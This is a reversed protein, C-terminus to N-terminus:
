FMNKELGPFMHTYTVGNGKNRRALELFALDGLAGLVVISSMVGYAGPKKLQLDDEDLAKAGQGAGLVSIVRPNFAAQGKGADLKVTSAM